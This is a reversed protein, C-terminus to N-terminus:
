SATPSPRPDSSPGCRRTVSACRTPVFRGFSEDLHLANEYNLGETVVRGSRVDARIESEWHARLETLELDIGTVGRELNDFRQQDGSTMPGSSRSTIQTMEALLKARKANKEAM